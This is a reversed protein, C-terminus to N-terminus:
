LYPRKLVLQCGPGPRTVVEPDEVVTVAAVLRDMATKQEAAAGLAVGLGLEVAPGRDVATKQLRGVTMLALTSQISLVQVLKSDVELRLETQEIM